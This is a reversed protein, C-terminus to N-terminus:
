SNLWSYFSTTSGRSSNTQLSRAVIPAIASSVSTLWMSSTDRIKATHRAALSAAPLRDNLKKTLGQEYMKKSKAIREPKARKGIPSLIWLQGDHAILDPVRYADTGLARGNTQSRAPRPKIRRARDLLSESEYQTLAAVQEFTALVSLDLAVTVPAGSLLPAFNLRGNKKWSSQLAAQREQKWQEVLKADKWQDGQLTLV